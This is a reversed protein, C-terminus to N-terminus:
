SGIGYGRTLNRLVSVVKEQADDLRWPAGETTGASTVVLPKDASGHEGVNAMAWRGFTRAPVNAEQTLEVSGHRPDTKIAAFLKRVQVEEGELVQAFWHDYLLLAGTIGKAANGTRAVRLIEGLERDMDADSIKSRSRYILRFVGASVKESAESKTSHHITSSM